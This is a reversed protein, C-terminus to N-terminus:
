PLKAILENQKGARSGSRTITILKNRQTQM